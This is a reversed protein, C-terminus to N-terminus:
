ISDDLPILGNQVLWFSIPTVSGTSILNPDVGNFADTPM